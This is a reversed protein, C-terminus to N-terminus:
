ARYLSGWLPLLDTFTVEIWTVLRRADSIIDADASRDAFLWRGYFVSGLDLPHQCEILWTMADNPLLSTSPPQDGYQIFGANASMWDRLFTRWESSAIQQFNAFYALAREQGREQAADAARSFDFGIGACV